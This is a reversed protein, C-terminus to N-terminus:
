QTPSDHHRPRRLRSPLLGHLHDSDPAVNTALGPYPGWRTVPVGITPTKDERTGSLADPRAVWIGVRGDRREGAVGCAALAAIIWAELDHVFRRVDPGRRKLDLM